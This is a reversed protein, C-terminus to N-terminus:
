DEPHYLESELDRDTCWSKLPFVEYDTCRLTIRFFVFFRAKELM